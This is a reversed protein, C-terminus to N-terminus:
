RNIEWEAPDIVPETPKEYKVLSGRLARAARFAPKVPDGVDVHVGVAAAQQPEGRGESGVVPNGHAGNRGDGFRPM